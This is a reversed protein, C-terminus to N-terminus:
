ELRKIYNSHNLTEVFVISLVELLGQAFSALLQSRLAFDDKRDEEGLAVVGGHVLDKVPGTFGHGAEGQGGDVVTKLCEHVAPEDTLDVVLTFRRAVARVKGRVGMKAILRGTPDMIDLQGGFDDFAESRNKGGPEVGFDDLYAEEAAGLGLVREAGILKGIDSENTM